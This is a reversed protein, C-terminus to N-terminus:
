GASSVALYMMRSIAGRQSLSAVTELYQKQREFYAIGELQELDARHNLRARLRGTANKLLNATRDVCEILRFGAVELKCENFGVPVFQTHGHLSRVRIEDDTVAGTIVGADTFLFRGGPTLVRAVEQFVAARDRLHLIVDFSLAANFIGNEFPLPGNLDAERLTVSRDRGFAAARARGSAIAKTSLDVGSGECGVLNVTFVLPGCPGCGLDLFQSTRTLNLRPIDEELEEATVWSHQGIDKGYAELRVKQMSPSNFAEYVADYGRDDFEAPACM